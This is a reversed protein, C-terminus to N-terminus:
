EPCAWFRMRWGDGEVALAALYGAGPVLPELRWRSSEGPDGAVRVRGWSEGPAATVDICALPLSLGEGRAKAYAEKRTWYAFFTEIAAGPPVAELAARERPTFMREVIPRWAVTPRVREVDVGVERGRSVTYIALRGSHSANFRLAAGGADGASGALAPKGYPGYRFRLREPAEDLYRALIARLAGRAIVFRDRDAAFHLRAARELEDPALTRALRELRSASPDLSARWVHVERRALAMRRPPEIWIPRLATM